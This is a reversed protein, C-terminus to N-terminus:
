SSFAATLETMERELQNLHDEELFHARFYERGKEGADAFQEPHSLFTLMVEAMEEPDNAPVAIGCGSERIVQAGAGNCSAVIPKGAAMYTQIKGPLTDGIRNSGDLTLVCCDAQRYLNGTEHFPVSGKWEIVDGLGLEDALARCRDADSGSGAIIVRFPLAASVKMSDEEVANKRLAKEETSSTLSTVAAKTAPTTEKEGATSVPEKDITIAATEKDRVIAAARILVDLRTAKGINGIYLFTICRDAETQCNAKEYDEELMWQPGYQPLYSIKAPDVGDVQTLYERFPESSIAIHDASRYARRSLRHIIRYAPTGERFGMAKVCEPWIDMCYCYVPIRQKKGVRIAPFLQTVPSVEWVYVLDFRKGSRQITSYGKFWFSLYNWARHFAGHHRPHTQVRYVEAGKYTERAIRGHQYREPVEGTTYDPLGTLVTVEHGRQVMREVLGNVAFIDPYFNSSVVLIRM